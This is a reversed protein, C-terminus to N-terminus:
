GANRVTESGSYCTQKEQLYKTWIPRSLETPLAVRQVIPVPDKGPTCAAPAHRHGGVEM